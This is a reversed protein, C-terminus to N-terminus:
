VIRNVIINTLEGPAYGSYSGTTDPQDNVVWDVYGETPTIKYARMYYQIPM